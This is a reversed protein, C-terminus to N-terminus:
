KDRGWSGRNPRTAGFFISVNKAVTDADNVTGGFAIDM